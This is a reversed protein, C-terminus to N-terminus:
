TMITTLVRGNNQVSETDGMNKSGEKNELRMSPNM